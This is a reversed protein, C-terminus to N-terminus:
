LVYNILLALTIIIGLCAVTLIVLKRIDARVYHMEEELSMTNVVARARTTRTAAIARRQGASPMAAGSTKSMPRTAAAATAVGAPMQRMDAQQYGESGDMNADAVEGSMGMDGMPQTATGVGMQADVRRRWQEQRARQQATTSTKKPM